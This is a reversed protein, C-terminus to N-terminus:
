KLVSKTCHQTFNNDNCNGMLTIHHLLVHNLDDFYTSVKTDDVSCRDINIDLHVDITLNLLVLVVEHQKHMRSLPEMVGNFQNWNNILLRIDIHELNPLVSKM